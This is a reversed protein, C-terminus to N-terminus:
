VVDRKNHLVFNFIHTMNLIKKSRFNLFLIVILLLIMLVGIKHSYMILYKNEKTFKVDTTCSGGIFEASGKGPNLFDNLQKKVM